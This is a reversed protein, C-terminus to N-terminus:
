VNALEEDTPKSLTPHEWSKIYDGKSDSDNQLRITGTFPNFDKESLETYISIIKNYLM